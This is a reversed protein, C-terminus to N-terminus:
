VVRVRLVGDIKGIEALTEAPVARDVDMLTYAVDKRSENAILM